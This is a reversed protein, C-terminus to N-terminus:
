ITMLMINRTALSQNCNKIQLTLLLFFIIPAIYVFGVSIQFKILQGDLFNLNNCKLDIPKCCQASIISNAHSVTKNCTNCAPKLCM